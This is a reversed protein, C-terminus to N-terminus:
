LTLSNEQCEKLYRLSERGLEVIGPSYDFPEIGIWGDFEIEKLAGMVYRFDLRGFGPGQLNPDNAHFSVLKKKPAVYKITDHISQYEGGDMAKCDLHLSVLEPSGLKKIFSLTEDANVWFNTETPALAELALVVGSKELAPLTKSVVDLANEVAQERSQNKGINRQNPSGLVMYKGGLEACFYALESLYAATKKRVESDDTTIHFGETKALIWHLGSVAVGFRQSLRAIRTRITADVRQLSMVDDRGAVYEPDLSFPALEAGDYGWAAFAEFQNELSWKQYMENCLAFKM